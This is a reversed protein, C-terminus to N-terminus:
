SFFNNMILAKNTHTHTHPRVATWYRFHTSERVWENKHDVYIPYMKLILQSDNERMQNIGCGALYQWAGWRSAKYNWVNKTNEALERQATAKAPYEHFFHIFNQYSYSINWINEIESQGKKGCFTTLVNKNINVCCSSWFRWKSLVRSSKM